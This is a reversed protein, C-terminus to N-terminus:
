PLFLIHPIINAETLFGNMQFDTTVLDDAPM